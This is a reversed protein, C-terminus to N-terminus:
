KLELIEQLYKENEYYNYNRVSNIGGYINGGYLIIAAGLSFGFKIDEDRDYYYFALLSATSVLLFSYLGDGYRGTYFHGGGPFLSLLAGLIPKKYRPKPEPLEIYNAAEDFNFEYAHGVGILSAAEDSYPIAVRNLYTRSSDMEGASFYVLGATYNRKNIDEIYHLESIAEHYRGLRTLCEVVREYIKESASDSLFLYRRYEHLADAYDEQAYLHEAFQLMNQPEFLESQCVLLFFPIIM